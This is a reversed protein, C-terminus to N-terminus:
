RMRVARDSRALSRAPRRELGEGSFAVVTGPPVSASIDIVRNATTANAPDICCKSTCRQPRNKV